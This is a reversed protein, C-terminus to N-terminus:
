IDLNSITRSLIKTEIKQLHEGVTSQGLGIEDAIERITTGRPIEYYGNEAAITLIQHQRETLLSGLHRADPHYEGTRELRVSVIKSIATLTRRVTKPEGILTVRPDGDATFTLPTDLVIEFEQVISLLSKAPDIAVVHFYALGRESGAIDCTLVNSVGELARRAQDLNGRLQYLTVITGDDLKNIHHICERTVSPEEALVRYGPSFGDDGPRLVVTAYRVIEGRQQLQKRPGM